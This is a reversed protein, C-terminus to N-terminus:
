AFLAREGAEEIAEPVTLQCHEEPPPPPHPHPPHPSLAEVGLKWWVANLMLPWRWLSEAALIMDTIDDHSMRAEM